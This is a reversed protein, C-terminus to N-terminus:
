RIVAIVTAIIMLWLALDIILAWAFSIHPERTPGPVPIDRAMAFSRPCPMEM